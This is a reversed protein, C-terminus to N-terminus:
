RFLVSTYMYPYCFGMRRNAGDFISVVRELYKSGLVGTNPAGSVQSYYAMLFCSGDPMFDALYDLPTLRVDFMPGKHSGARIRFAPFNKHLTACNFIRNFSSPALNEFLGGATQIHQILWMYAHQPLIIDSAGTDFWWYFLASSKGKIVISGPVIWNAKATSLQLPIYTPPKRDECLFSYEEKGIYVTGADIQGKHRDFREQPPVVAFSGVARILDSSAGGGLLGTGVNKDNCVPTLGLTVKFKFGNELEATEVIEKVLDVGNQVHDTGFMLRKIKQHAKGWDLYGSSRRSCDQVRMRIYSTDSASDLMLLFPRDNYSAQAHLRITVRVRPDRHSQLYKLPVATADRHTEATDSHMQSSQAPSSKVPTDNQKLRKNSIRFLVVPALADHCRVERGPIDGLKIKRKTADAWSIGRCIGDTCKTEVYTSGFAFSALNHCMDFNLSDVRFAAISLYILMQIAM